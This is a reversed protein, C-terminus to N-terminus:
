TTSTAKQKYTLHDDVLLYHPIAAKRFVTSYLLIIGKVWIRENGNFAFWILAKSYSSENCSIIFLLTTVPLFPYLNSLLPANLKVDSFTPIQLHFVIKRNLKSNVHLHLTCQIFVRLRTHKLKRGKELSCMQSVNM